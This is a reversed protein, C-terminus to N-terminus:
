LTSRRPRYFAQVQMTWDARVGSGEQWVFLRQTAGPLVHVPPTLTTYIPHQAGAEILYQQGEIGDDVIWDNNLVLMGRQRIYRYYREEAPAFALFDLGVSLAASGQVWIRLVMKAWAGNSDGGPPLPIVGLDHMIETDSATIRPTQYLPVFGYYDYIQAWIYLPQNAGFLTTFRGLVHVWRGAYATLTASPIDFAIDIPSNNEAVVVSGGSAGTVSAIPRGNTREEGEIHHDVTPAFANVALHFGRYFRSGGSTNRLRVELPAPLPGAVSAADIDVYNIAGNNITLGTTNNSGNPNSLPIQTRPGEWYPARTIILAAEVQAQGFVTLASDGLRLLGVHIESRWISTEGSAQFQLFVRAGAGNNKRQEALVFMREIANIRAQMEATTAGYILVEVPETVPEGDPSASPTYHTLMVGASTLSITTTGNTINLAHPM